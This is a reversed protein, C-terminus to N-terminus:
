TSHLTRWKLPSCGHRKKFSSSFAHQGSFGCDRAVEHVKLTTQELLECALTMRERQIAEYPTEGAFAQFRMELTRRSVGTRRALEGVSHISAPHECILSLAKKVVWDENGGKRLLSERWVIDGPPLWVQVPDGSEGALRRGLLAVTEKGMAQGPLSLSSLGVGARVSEYAVNGVGLLAIEEPIAWGLKRVYEVVERALSDQVAFLGLPRPLYKLDESWNVPLRGMLRTVALGHRSMVEMFAKELRASGEQGRLGLFVHSALGLGALAEAAQRGAEECDVGVTDVSNVLSLQSINVAPFVPLGRLWSDSVFHGIAGDIRGMAVWERLTGEFGLPLPILEWGLRRVEVERRIGEFIDMSLHFDVDFTVAVRTVSSASFRRDQYGGKRLKRM